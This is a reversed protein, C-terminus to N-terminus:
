LNKEIYLHLQTALARLTEISHFRPYGLYKSLNIGENTQKLHHTALFELNDIIPKNPRESVFNVLKQAAIYPNIDEIEKNIEILDHQVKALLSMMKHDFGREKLTIMDGSMENIVATLNRKFLNSFEQLKHQREEYAKDVTDHGSIPNNVIVTKVQALVVFKEVMDLIKQYKMPM